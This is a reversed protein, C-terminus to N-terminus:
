FCEKKIFKAPNGGWVEHDPVNETVVSGAAIIAEEGITVGKLILANAGIFAGRKIHVPSSIIAGGPSFMREEFNLSHCNSDIITVGGGLMVDNEIIIEKECRIRANSMCVGDGIILSANGYVEFATSNGLVNYKVGSHIIVNNGLSITGQNRINIHGKLLLRKYSVHNKKLTFYNDLRIQFFPAYIRKAFMRM